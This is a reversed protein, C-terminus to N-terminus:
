SHGLKGAFSTPWHQIRVWKSHKMTNKGPEDLTALVTAAAHRADPGRRPKKPRTTLHPSSTPVWIEFMHFSCQLCAIPPKEQGLAESPKTAQFISQCWKANEPWRMLMQSKWEVFCKVGFYELDTGGGWGWPRFGCPWGMPAASNCRIAVSPCDRLQKPFGFFSPGSWWLNLM